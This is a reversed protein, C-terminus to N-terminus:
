EKLPIEFYFLDKGSGAQKIGSVIVSDGPRHHAQFYFFGHASEHPPLMQAAFARTEIEPGSLPNKHKKRLEPPLPNPVSSPRRPGGLAFPVDAAPTNDIQKGDFATYEVQMHDLRLSEDTDNQVIVLIPLIGYQYPNVKGFATHALEEGDYARAAITVKDNTQKSAYSSAEGPSFRAEEKKDAIAPAAAILAAALVGLVKM